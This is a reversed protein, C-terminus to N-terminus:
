DYSDYLLMLKKLSDATLHLLAQLVLSTVKINNVSAMEKLLNYLKKSVRIRIYYDKPQKKELEKTLVDILEKNKKISEELMEKENM